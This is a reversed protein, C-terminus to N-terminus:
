AESAYGLMHSSHNAPLLKQSLHQSIGMEHDIPLLKQCLANARSAIPDLSSEWCECTSPWKRPGKVVIRNRSGYKRSGYFDRGRPTELNNKLHLSYNSSVIGFVSPSSSHSLSWVLTWVKMGVPEPTTFVAEDHQGLPLGFVQLTDRHDPSFPSRDRRFGIRFLQSTSERGKEAM